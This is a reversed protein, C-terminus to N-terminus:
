GGAGPVILALLTLGLSLEERSRVVPAFLRTNAALEM